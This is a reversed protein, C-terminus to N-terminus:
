SCVRAHIPSITKLGNFKWERIQNGEPYEGVADSVCSQSTWNEDYTPYFTPYLQFGNHPHEEQLHGLLPGRAPDLSQDLPPTKMLGPSDEPSPLGTPGPAGNSPSVGAPELELSPQGVTKQANASRSTLLAQDPSRKKAQTRLPTPSMTLDVIEEVGLHGFPGQKQRSQTSPPTWRLSWGNWWLVHTKWLQNRGSNGEWSHIEGGDGMWHITHDQISIVVDGSDLCLTFTDYPGATRYVRYRLGSKGITGAQSAFGPHSEEWGTYPGTSALCHHDVFPLPIRSNCVGPERPDEHVFVLDSSPTAINYPPPPRFAQLEHFSHANPFNSQSM